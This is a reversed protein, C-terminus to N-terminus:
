TFTPLDDSVILGSVFWSTGDCVIIVDTGCNPKNVTLILDSSGDAYVPIIETVTAEAVDLQTVGGKYFGGPSTIIWDHADDAAGSYLLRFELGDEEEPLAMACNGTLDLITHIKGTNKALFQYTTADPVVIPPRLNTLNKHDEIATQTNM